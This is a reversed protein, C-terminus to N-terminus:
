STSFREFTYEAIRLPQTLDSVDFLAVQTPGVGTATNQGVTLLHTEDIFQMYDSFGPLTLHGLAQPNTPDSLDVGFLPDVQEFTTVFAREGMFRVSRITEDLALNQLSGVFEFVGEDDQLVFLTNAARDSWNGAGRNDITTAIRLRGDFEDASFQNLMSGPVITNAAFEIGGTAPDWDFKMVRTVAGDEPVYDRDFVRFSEWSSFLGL